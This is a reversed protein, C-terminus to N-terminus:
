SGLNQYDIAQQEETLEPLPPYKETIGLRRVKDAMNQIGMIIPGNETLNIISENCDKTLRLYPV